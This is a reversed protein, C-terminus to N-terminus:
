ASLVLDVEQNGHVSEEETEGTMRPRQYQVFQLTTESIESSNVVLEIDRNRGGSGSSQIGENDVRTFGCLGDKLVKSLM